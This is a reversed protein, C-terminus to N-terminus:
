HAYRSRAGPQLHLEIWRGLDRRYLMGVLRGGDVVPLQDADARSLKEFAAALEEGPAVVAPMRDAPTMVESVPTAEWAERPASRVDALTVVGLLHGSEDAVPVARDDGRSLWTGVFTGVPTGPALVPVDVRMLRAVTMGELMAHVLQRRWTQAAASSLFWGIFALWLGAAFGQGFFPVHAGFAMAVGLFIFLWGFAQGVASAWRTAVHLDHTAAWIISRLIRGGDLPFGPILNFVGVILNIPGLWVVLTALPGLRAVAASPDMVADSPVRVIVADIALLVVGLAISTLPGVVATLFEAKPSPPEREINSVGGFLFLTISEVPIGFRRAVLSHALEHVIVSGFFCLAALLATGFAVIPSWDPHWRSFGLTLSWTMLLVIIVWSADFGLRIGFL